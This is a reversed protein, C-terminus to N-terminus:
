SPRGHRRGLRLDTVIMVAAVVLLTFRITRESALTILHSGVASRFPHDPDHANEFRRRPQPNWRYSSRELTNSFLEEMLRNEFWAVTLQELAAAGSWDQERAKALNRDRAHLHVRAEYTFPDESVPWTDLFEGYRHRYADIADAVEGARSEDQGQLEELTLRSRFSGLGPVTHRHGYEAMPNRSSMLHSCSPLHPAYRAVRAPTNSLCLVLLVLQAAVLRLPIRLSRPDWSRVSPRVVRWLIVQVLAGAGGNLVLDRWDWYRSPTIWQIIEDITGVLSGILAGAVFVLASRISPRLARHILVALVGYELFHVSEEPSRRLSFTWAVFIAASVVIWVVDHRSAPQTQRMLFVLAVVAACVLIAAVAWGISAPDWRAVYWERLVRVFPITTYIVLVWMVVPLWRRIPSDM